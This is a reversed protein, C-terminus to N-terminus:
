SEQGPFSTEFFIWLRFEGVAGKKDIQDMGHQYCVDYMPYQIQNRNRVFSQQLKHHKCYVSDKNIQSTM